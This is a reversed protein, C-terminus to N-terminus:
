WLEKLLTEQDLHKKLVSNISKVQQISEVGATFVKLIM